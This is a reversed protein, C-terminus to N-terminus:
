PRGKKNYLDTTPSILRLSAFTDGAVIKKLDNMYENSMVRGMAEAAPPKRTM